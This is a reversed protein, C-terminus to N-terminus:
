PDKPQPQCFNTPLPPRQQLQCVASWRGDVRAFVEVASWNGHVGVKLDSWRKDIEALIKVAFGYRDYEVWSM